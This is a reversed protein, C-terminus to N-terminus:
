LGIERRTTWSTTSCLPLELALLGESKTVLASHGVPDAEAVVSAVGTGLLCLM